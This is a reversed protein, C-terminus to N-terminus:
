EANRQRFPNPIEITKPAQEADIRDVPAWGDHAPLAKAAEWLGSGNASDFMVKPFLKAVIAARISTSDGDGVTVSHRKAVEVADAKAAVEVAAKEKTAFEDLKARADALDAKATALEKVADRAGTLEALLKELVSVAEGEEMSDQKTFRRLSALMKPDMTPVEYADVRISCRDGHRPSSCIAIHNNPGRKVQRRDYRGYKPHIGPTDDITVPYGMSLGAKKGSEMADTAARTRAAIKIRIYGRDDIEAEGDADGVVYQTANDPTVMEPPHELTIPSRAVSALYDPDALVADDVLELVTGGSATKYPHVGPIAAVGNGYLASRDARWELGLLEGPAMDVRTEETLAM